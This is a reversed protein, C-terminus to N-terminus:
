LVQSRDFPQYRQPQWLLASLIKSQFLWMQTQRRAEGVSIDLNFVEPPLEERGLSALLKDVVLGVGVLNGAQENLVVVTLKEKSVGTEVGMVQQLSVLPIIQGKKHVCGLVAKDYFPLPLIQSKVLILMESVLMLPFVVTVDGLQTLLYRQQPMISKDPTTTSTM